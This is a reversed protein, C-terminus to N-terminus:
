RADRGLLFYKTTKGGNILCSKHDKLLIQVLLIFNQGFGNKELFFNPSTQDLIDFAQEINMTYLLGVINKIETTEM